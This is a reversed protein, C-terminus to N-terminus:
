VEVSNDLGEELSEELTRFTIGDITTEHGSLLSSYLENYHRREMDLLLGDHIYKTADYSLYKMFYLGLNNRIDAQAAFYLVEEFEEQTM